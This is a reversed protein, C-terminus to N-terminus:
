KRLTFLIVHKMIHLENEKPKKPPVIGVEVLFEVIDKTKTSLSKAKEAYTADEEFHREYEKIFAACGASDVILADFTYNSFIDIINKAMQKATNIEGYHAHLAGCCGQMKPIIVEFGNALLVSIADRHVNAFAVNMICGSLFAVRGRPKGKPLIIEPVTEDFPKESIIPLLFHRQHLKESFVSLIKSQEVADRLGSRQYLRLWAAVLNTTRKSELVYLMMSKILHLFFPEKKNESITNRADEIMKGYNVGAPCATECAQCALCFYMENVFEKSLDLTQEELMKILRIRGRPSSRENYTLSYTPCVPLCMGCHLCRSLLEDLSKVKETNMAM